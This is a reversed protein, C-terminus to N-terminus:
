SATLPVRQTTIINNRVEKSFDVEKQHLLGDILKKKIDSFSGFSLFEEFDAHRSFKVAAVTVERGWGLGARRVEVRGSDEDLIFLRFQSTVNSAMIRPSILRVPIHSDQFFTLGDIADLLAKKEADSRLPVTPSLLRDGEQSWCLMVFLSISLLVTEEV